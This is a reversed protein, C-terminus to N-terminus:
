KKEELKMQKYSKAWLVNNVLGPVYPNDVGTLMQFVEKTTKVIYECEKSSPQIGSIDRLISGSKELGIKKVSKEYGQRLWSLCNSCKPFRNEGSKATWNRALAARASATGARRTSNNPVWGRAEYHNVFNEVEKEPNVFGKFFFISLFIEREASTLGSQERPERSM